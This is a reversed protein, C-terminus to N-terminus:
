QSGYNSTPHRVFEAGYLGSYRSLLCICRLSGRVGSFVLEFQLEEFTPQCDVAGGLICERREAVTAIFGFISVPFEATGNLLSEPKETVIDAVVQM